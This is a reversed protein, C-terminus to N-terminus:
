ALRRTRGSGGAGDTGRSELGSTCFCDVCAGSGRGCFGCGAAPAGSLGAPAMPVAATAGPGALAASEAPAGSPGAARRRLIRPQRQPGRHPRRRWYQEPARDPRRWWNQSSAAPGPRLRWCRGHRPVGCRYSRTRYHAATGAINTSPRSSAMPRLTTALAPLQPYTTLSMFDFSLLITLERM